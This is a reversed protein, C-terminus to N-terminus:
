ASCPPSSPGPSTPWLCVTGGSRGSNRLCASSYSRLRSPPPRTKGYAAADKRLMALSLCANGRVDRSPNKELLAALLNSSCQHRLRELEPCLAALNTDTIHERRIVAAAQSVEPGDPTNLLVWVAGALGEPSGPDWDLRALLEARDPGPRAPNAKAPPNESFGSGNWYGLSRGIRYDIVDTGSPMGLGSLTWASPDVPINVRASRRRLRTQTFSTQNGTTGHLVMAKVEIPLPDRPNTEDYLSIVVSGNCAYKIVQTPAAEDLWFDTDLGGRCRVHWTTKAEVLEEGVLEVSGPADCRLCSEVTDLVGPSVELGLCRPDFLYTGSSRAPDDIKGQVPRGDNEWYDLLLTGDYATVHRSDFVQLLGARVAAEHDLHEAQRRAEVAESAETGPLTAAYERTFSEFRRKAGDFVVKLRVENTGDDPRSFEYVALAFEMEGSGMRNRARAVAQLLKVAEPPPAAAPRNSEVSPPAPTTAAAATAAAGGIESDPGAVPTTRPRNALSMWVLAGGAVLGALGAALKVRSVRALWGGIGLGTGVAAPLQMAALALVLGAPAAEVARETLLAALLAAGCTVGKQGFVARLRDLARSVRMKAADESVGFAMGVERMSKQEFFRLLIAQRELDNLENLAEDLLPGIDTWAAPETHQPQMAAVHHERARRRAEARWLDISAHVTTRHLWAVLEADSRVNPVAKALRLFVSQTVDEALSVNALRRRAVSYVLNTYHRMLAGFPAESRTRRFEALLETGNM